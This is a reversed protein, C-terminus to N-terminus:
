WVCASDEASMEWLRDDDETDHNDIERVILPNDSKWAAEAETLHACFSSLPIDPEWLNTAQAASNHPSPHTALAFCPSMVPERFVAAAGAQPAGGPGESIAEARPQLLIAHEPPQMMAPPMKRTPIQSTSSTGTGIGDGPAPGPIQWYCSFFPPPPYIFPSAPLWFMRPLTMPLPKGGTPGMKGAARQQQPWAVECAADAGKQRKARPTACVDWLGRKRAQASVTTRLTDNAGHVETLVGAAEHAEHSGVGPESCAHLQWLHAKWIPIIRKLTAALTKFSTSAFSPHKKALRRCESRMVASDASDAPDRWRIGRFVCM